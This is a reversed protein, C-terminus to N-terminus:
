PFVTLAHQATMLQAGGDYLAVTQSHQGINTPNTQWSIWVHFTTSAPIKGFDWVQWDGQASESSPQPAIGNLTMAQFWGNSLYLRADNLPQHPTIVIDTTFVLGGRVHAPSDIVLSAAPSQYTISTAHQGFVNFLALVPIAAIVTLSARRWWVHHNRGTLDEHRVRDIGVPSQTGAM